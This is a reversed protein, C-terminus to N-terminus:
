GKVFQELDDVRNLWAQGFIPFQDLSRYYQRRTHNYAHFEGAKNLIALAASTGANVAMDFVTLSLPWALDDGMIGNWYKYRYINKAQALTMTQINVQPNARSSIGWLTPGGKDVAIDSYGGEQALVFRMARGFNRDDWTDLIVARNGADEAVWGSLGNRVQWWTLLSGQFSRQVPGGVIVLREGPPLVGLRAGAPEVRVNAGLITVAEDWQQFRM